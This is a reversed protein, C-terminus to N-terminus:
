QLICCSANTSEVIEMNLLYCKGREISNEDSDLIGFMFNCVLRQEIDTTEDLCVWIYNQNVKARLNQMCEDYLMPVYKQRLNSESPMTKGAYSEIFKVISPHSVKKLPINAEIFTKCLDMSFEDIKQATRNQQAVPLLTQRASSGNQNREEVKKNQRDTTIHQKVHSIKTAGPLSCECYNCFLIKNDTRFTGPFNAVIRSLFERRTEKTKGM